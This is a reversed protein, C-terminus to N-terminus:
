SRGLSGYAEWELRYAPFATGSDPTYSTPYCSQWPLLRDVAALLDDLMQWSSADGQGPALLLAVMDHQLGPRPFVGQSIGGPQFLVCPPVIKRPDTTARVGAAALQRALDEAMILSM